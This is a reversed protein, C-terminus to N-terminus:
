IEPRTPTICPSVWDWRDLLGLAYSQGSPIDCDGSQFIALFVEIDTMSRFNGQLDTIMPPNSYCTPLVSRYFGPLGLFHNIQNVFSCADSDDLVGFDYPTINYNSANSENLWILMTLAPNINASTARAIVDNYCQNVNNGPAGSVWRSALSAITQIDHICSDTATATQNCDVDTNDCYPAEGPGMGPGSPCFNWPGAPCVFGEYPEIEIDGYPDLYPDAERLYYSSLMNQLISSVSELRNLHPISVENTQTTFPQGPEPLVSVYGITDERSVMPVYAWLKGYVSNLWDQQILNFNRVCQNFAQQDTIGTCDYVPPENGIFESMRVPTGTAWASPEGGSQYAVIYDHITQDPSQTNAINQSKLEDQRQSSLLKRLVGLRNWVQYSASTLSYPDYPDSYSLSPEALGEYYSRGELYDALHEQARNFYTLLNDFGPRNVSVLPLEYESLDISYDGAALNQLCPYSPHTTPCEQENKMYEIEIVAWPRMACFSYDPEQVPGCIEAPYPRLPHSESTNLSCSRVVVNGTTPPPTPPPTITQATISQPKYILFIGWLLSSISLALVKKMLKLNLV